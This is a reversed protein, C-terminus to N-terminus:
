ARRPESQRVRQVLQPDMPACGRIATPIVLMAGQDADFDVDDAPTAELEVVVCDHLDTEKAIMYDYLGELTPFASVGRRPRGAVEGTGRCVPCGAEWRVAGRCVPCDRRAGGLRCSRCAHPTRGDGGRKDCREGDQSDGWPETWQADETLM